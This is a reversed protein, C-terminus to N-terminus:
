GKFNYSLFTNREDVNYGKFQYSLFSNREDM